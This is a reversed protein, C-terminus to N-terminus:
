APPILRKQWSHVGIRGADHGPKGEPTQVRMQHSVLPLLPVQSLPLVVIQAVRRSFVQCGTRTACMRQSGGDPRGDPLASIAAGARAPCNKVGAAQVTIPSFSEEAPKHTVPKGVHRTVDVFM